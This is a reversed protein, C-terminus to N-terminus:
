IDDEYALESVRGLGCNIDNGETNPVHTLEAFFSAVDLHPSSNFWLVPYLLTDVHSSHMAYTNEM